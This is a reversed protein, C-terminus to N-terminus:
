MLVLLGGYKTVSDSLSLRADKVGHTAKCRFPSPKKVGLQFPSPRHEATQLNVELRTETLYLGCFYTQQPTDRSLVFDSNRESLTVFRRPKLESSQTNECRPTSHKVYFMQFTHSHIHTQICAHM